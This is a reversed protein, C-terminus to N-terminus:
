PALYGYKEFIDKAKKSLIFTYFLQAEELNKRNKILVIGQKIPSYLNQEVEVWHKNYILHKMQPAYLASSAILGLDAARLTYSLTQSASEGYILKPKITKLINANTFFELTAKGYPATKPNAVAVRKIMPEQLLKIVDSFNREKLSLVSLTGKAYVLPKSSTLNNEFLALPYEMNASLFINYPAGHKIQTTLKGSSGLITKIKIHPYTKSFEQKLEKIVYNLNASLAVNISSAILSTISFFTLLLLSKLMSNGKYLM